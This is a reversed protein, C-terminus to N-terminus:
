LSMKERLPQDSKKLNTAKCMADRVAWAYSSWKEEGEKGVHTEFLYDNPIFPPLVYLTSKYIGMSAIMFILLTKFPIIDYTPSVYTHSGMFEVKAVMPRVPTLSAFAGRRFRLLASGNNNVGEAFLVIPSHESKEEIIQRQREIIEECMKDREESSAARNAFVSNLAYLIERFLPVKHFRVDPVFAPPHQTSCLTFVEFIGNHNCVITSDKQGSEKYAKLEKKWNPGLYESYDARPDDETIEERHIDTFFAVVMMVRLIGSMTWRMLTKRVGTVPKSLDLGITLFICIIGILGISCVHWAIRPLLCTLAGPYLNWRSWRKSDARRFAPFKDSLEDPLAIFRKSAYLAYEVMLVGILSNAVVCFIAINKWSLYSHEELAEPSDFVGFNEEILSTITM